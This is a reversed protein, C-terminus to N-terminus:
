DLGAWISFVKGMTVQCWFHKPGENNETIIPHTQTLGLWLWHKYQEKLDVRFQCLAPFSGSNGRGSVCNEVPMCLIGEFVYAGREKAQFDGIRSDCHNQFILPGWVVPPSTLVCIAQRCGVLTGSEVPPVQLELHEALEATMSATSGFTVNQCGQLSRDCRDCWMAITEKCIQNLRFHHIFHGGRRGPDTCADTKKLKTFRSGFRLSLTCYSKPISISCIVLYQVNLDSPM